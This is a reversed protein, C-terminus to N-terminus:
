IRLNISNYGACIIIGDNTVAPLNAIADRVTVKNFFSPIVKKIDEETYNIKETQFIIQPIQYKLSYTQEAVWADERNDYINLIWCRDFGESRARNKIGLSTQSAYTHVIGIRFIGDYREM